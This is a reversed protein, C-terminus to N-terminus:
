ILGERIDLSDGLTNDTNTGLLLITNALLDQEINDM